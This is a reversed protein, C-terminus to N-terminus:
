FQLDLQLTLTLTKYSNLNTLNDRNYSFSLNVTAALNQLINYSGGILATYKSLDQEVNASSRGRTFDTSLTSNLNLKQEFKFVKGGIIPMWDWITIPNDQSLIYNITFSPSWHFNWYTLAGQKTNGGDIKVGLNGNVINDKTAYMLQASFTQTNTDKTKESLVMPNWRLNKTFGYTGNITQNNVFAELGPITIKNIRWQQLSLNWDESPEQLTRGSSPRTKTYTGYPTLSVYDGLKLENFQLTHNLTITGIYSIDEFQQMERQNYMMQWLFAYWRREFTLSDYRSFSQPDSQNDFNESVNVSASYKNIDPIFSWMKSFQIPTSFELLGTTRLQNQEYSLRNTMTYSLSPLFIWADNIRLIMSPLIERDLVLYRGSYYADVPSLVSTYYTYGIMNGKGQKLIYEFTPLLSFKWLDYTANWKYDQRLWMNWNNYYSTTTNSQDFKAYSNNLELASTVTNKGIPLFFIQDPANLTASPKWNQTIYNNTENSRPGYYTNRGNQVNIVSSLSLWQLASFVMYNNYNESDTDNLNFNDTYSLDNKYKDETYLKQKMYSNQFTSLFPVFVPNFTVSNQTSHQKLQSKTIDQITNFDAAKDEYTQTIAGIGAINLTAATYVASGTKEEPEDLRINNIYIVEDADTDNPNIFGLTIMNVHRLNPIGVPDSRMKDTGDIKFTVTSWNGEAANMEPSDTFINYQYYDTNENTGNSGLRVFMVRGPGASHDKKAYFVDMKLYKYPRYDYGTGNNFDKTVYYIPITRPVTNGTADAIVTRDFKSMKYKIALSDEFDKDSEQQWQFFNTNPTYQYGVLDQSTTRNVTYINFKSTDPVTIQNGAEDQIINGYINHNPVRLMWSNGKFDISEIIMSGVSPSSGTGQLTLRIHKVISMFQTNEPCVECNNPDISMNVADSFESLPIRINIWQGMNTFTLEPHATRGSTSISSFRYYKEDTELKGDRNLDESDLINNGAGWYTPNPGVLQDYIGGGIGTDENTPSSNLQNDNNKDETDLVGNGNADESIVGVDVNLVVPNSTTVKVWMEMYSYNHLSEGAPSLVYAYSDWKKDTLGNFDLKLMHKQTSQPLGSASQTPTTLVHGDALYDTPRSIFTRDAPQLGQPMAAPFWSGFSMSASISNDAGEMNDIMAVGKENNMSYTNANLDSYAYEGDFKFDVPLDTKGVLPLASLVGNIDEKKLAFDANSDFLMGSYPTSLTTDTSRADPPATGQTSDKKILSAGLKLNDLMAYDVRAGYVSSEFTQLAPSYEYVIKIDDNAGIKNMDTFIVNGTEYIIQYDKDRTRLGGNVFVRESGAVVPFYDLTYSSINFRYKLRITFNSRAQTKDVNYADTDTGGTSNTYPSNWKVNQSGFTFPYFAKFKLIGFDPDIEYYDAVDPDWPEDVQISASSRYIKIDFYNRDTGPNQIQQQGMYYYNQVQHSFDELGINTATTTTTQNISAQKILHDTNDTYGNSLSHLNAENLDISSGDSNLGNDARYGVSTVVGNADVLKYAVNITYDKSVGINFKIIGYKYDVQYNTGLTQKSFHFTGKPYSLLANPDTSTIGYDIYVMVSGPLVSKVAGTNTPDLATIQTTDKTLYYYNTLYSTDTITIGTNGNTQEQRLTGSFDQVETIGKSQAWVGLINLKSDLVSVKGKIGFLSQLSSSYKTSPLDFNIDGFSLEQLTETKDGKYMISIKKDEAASLSTVNDNYNIDVFIKAGINGNLILKLPQDIKLNFQPNTRGQENVDYWTESLDLSITKQGSLSLKSDPPLGYESIDASLIGSKQVTLLEIRGSAPASGVGTNGETDIPVVKYYYLRGAVPTGTNGSEDVSNIANDNYFLRGQADPYPRVLRENLQVAGFASDSITTRYINYGAIPYTGQGSPEDWLVRISETSAAKVTVNRPETISSFPVGSAPASLASTNGMADVSQLQYTYRVAQTLGTDEYETVTSSVGALVAAQMGATARFINYGSLSFDGTSVPAQWRLLVSDKKSVVGPQDPPVLPGIPMASVTNSDGTENSGDTATVRYFYNVRHMPPFLSAGPADVYQTVRILDKNVVIFNGSEATARYVNYYINPKDFKDWTLTIKMGEAKVRLNQPAKENATFSGALAERPPPTEKENVATLSPDPISVPTEAAPAAATRTVAAGATQTVAGGATDAAAPAAFVALAFFFAAAPRIITKM